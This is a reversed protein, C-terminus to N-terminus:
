LLYTERMLYKDANNQKKSYFPINSFFRTTEMLEVGRVADLLNAVTNTYRVIDALLWSLLARWPHTADAPHVQAHNHHAQCSYCM